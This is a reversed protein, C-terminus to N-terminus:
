IKLNMEFLTILSRPPLGAIQDYTCSRDTHNASVFNRPELSYLAGDNILGTPPREGSFSPNLRLDTCTPNTIFLAASPCTIGRTSRSDGTLIMGSLSEDTVLAIYDCCIVVDKFLVSLFSESGV